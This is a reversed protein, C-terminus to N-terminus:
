RKTFIREVRSGSSLLIEYSITGAWEAIDEATIEENGDRGILIAEDGVSVHDIDTIDAMLQDMCIRGIIKARKGGILVYGKEGASRFYGDGYGCTVTAVRVIRESQYTRGYSVSIGAPIEKIYSIAASWKMCPQLKMDTPVPPYGYLSIGARVMDLSMEPFRHIAASNCCHRIIDKPLPDTMDLFRQFQRRTYSIGDSGGDADSFHTFVGKLRVHKCKQLETVTADREKETRVGIRGMGTDVKLHVETQKEMSSAAAECYRVMEPACVTQILNYEVGERVDYETVAGLVLIPIDIGQLRLQVGESVSAVALMCAGGRIAAQATEAAGHGYGDAKVVALVGSSSPVANRILRMNNEIASLDIIRRNRPMM